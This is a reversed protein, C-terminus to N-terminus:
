PVPCRGYEVRAVQCSAWFPHALTRQQLEHEIPLQPDPDAPHVASALSAPPATVALLTLFGFIRAEIRM